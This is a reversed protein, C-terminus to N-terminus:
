TLCSICQKCKGSSTSPNALLCIENSVWQAYPLAPLCNGLGDSFVPYLNSSWPVWAREWCSWLWKPEIMWTLGGLLLVVFASTWIWFWWGGPWYSTPITTLPSPVQPQDLGLWRWEWWIPSEFTISTQHWCGRWYGWLWVPGFAELTRATTPMMPLRSAM